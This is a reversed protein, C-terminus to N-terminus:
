TKKIFKSSHAAHQDGNLNKIFIDADNEKSKVFIVKAIGDEVYENIFKYRIDVHKTRSTTTVNQAMFIAGINDVQVIIPSQVHIKMSTLLQSVFMVEKM